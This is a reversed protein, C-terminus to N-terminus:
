MDGNEEKLPCRKGICVLFPDGHAMENVPQAKEDGLPWRERISV